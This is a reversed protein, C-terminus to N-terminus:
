VELAALPIFLGLHGQFANLTLSYERFHPFVGLFVFVDKLCHLVDNSFAFLHNPM